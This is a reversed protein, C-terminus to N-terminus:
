WVLFRGGESRAAQPRGWLYRQHMTNWCRGPKLLGGVAVDDVPEPDDSGVHSSCRPATSEDTQPVPESTM